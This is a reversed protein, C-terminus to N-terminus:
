PLDLWDILRLEFARFIAQQRSRVNLTTYLRQVHTHITAETVGLSSAIEKESEGQMLGSLVDKERATLPKRLVDVVSLPLQALHYRAFKEHETAYLLLACLNAFHQPIGPMLTSDLYGNALELIGYRIQQYCIELLRSAITNSETPYAEWWIQAKTETIHAIYQQFAQRRTVLPARLTTPLFNFLSQQLYNWEKMVTREQALTYRDRDSNTEM